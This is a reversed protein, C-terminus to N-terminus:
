ELPRAQETEGCLPLGRRWCQVKGSVLLVCTTGVDGATVDLVKESTPVQVPQGPPKSPDKFGHPGWCYAIGDRSLGCMHLGGETLRVIPPLAIVKPGAAPDGWCFVQGTANRACPLFGAAAVDMMQETGPVRIPAQGAGSCWVGTSGRLYCAALYGATVDVVDTFTPPLPPPYRRSRPWNSWETPGYDGWARYCTVERSRTAACVDMVGVAVQVVSKVDLDVFRPTSKSPQWCRVVGDRLLACAIRGVFGFDVAEELEVREWQSCEDKCIVRGTRTIGCLIGATGIHIRMLQEDLGFTKSRGADGSPRASGRTASQQSSKESILSVGVVRAPNASAAKDQQGGCAALQLVVASFFPFVGPRL